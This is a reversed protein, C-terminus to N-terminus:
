KLPIDCVCDCECQFLRDCTAVLSSFCFFVDTEIPVWGESSAPLVCLGCQGAHLYVCVCVCVCVCVYIVTNQMMTVRRISLSHIDTYVMVKHTQTHKCAKTYSLCLSPHLPLFHTQTQTAALDWVLHSFTLSYWVLMVTLEGLCFWYM